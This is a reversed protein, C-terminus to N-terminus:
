RKIIRAVKEITRGGFFFALVMAGWAQIDGRMADTAGLGLVMDWVVCKFIYIAYAYMILARPLATWWRGEDSILIQTNLERERQEIALEKGALDAFIRETNNGAAIKAKYGDVMGGILPGTFASKIINGIAGGPTFSFFGM